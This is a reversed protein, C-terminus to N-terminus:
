SRGGHLGSKWTPRFLMRVPSSPDHWAEYASVAAYLAGAALGIAFPDNLIRTGSVIVVFAPYKTLLLQDGALTRRSRLAYWTAFVAHLAVFIAVSVGSADRSASIVTNLVALFRERLYAIIM